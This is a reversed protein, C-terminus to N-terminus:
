VSGTTKFLPLHIVDTTKRDFVYLGKNRLGRISFQHFEVEGSGSAYMTIMPQHFQGIESGPIGLRQLRPKTDQFHQLATEPSLFGEGAVFEDIGINSGSVIFATFVAGPLSAPAVSGTMSAVTQGDVYLYISGSAYTYGFYHYRRPDELLYSAISGTVTTTTTNQISMKTRQSPIDIGVLYGGANLVNSYNVANQRKFTISNLRAAAEKDIGTVWMECYFSAGFNLLPGVSGTYVLSGSPSVGTRIEDRSMVLGPVSGSTTIRQLNISNSSIDRLTARQPSQDDFLWHVGMSGTSFPLVDITDTNYERFYVTSPISSSGYQRVAFKYSADNRILVLWDYYWDPITNVYSDYVDIDYMAEDYIPYLTNPLQMVDGVFVAGTVSTPASNYMYGASSLSLVNTVSVAVSGTQPRYYSFDRSFFLRPNVDAKVVKRFAQEISAGYSGVVSATSFIYIDLGSYTNVSDRIFTNTGLRSWSVAFQDNVAFSGTAPLVHGIRPVDTDTVIFGPGVGKVSGTTTSLAWGPYQVLPQVILPAIGSFAHGVRALGEETTGALYAETLLRLTQRYPQLVSVSNFQDYSQEFLKSVGLVSGFNDFMKSTTRSTNVPTTRVDTVYLDNLLQNIDTSASAFQQAYMEFTDYVTSNIVNVPYWRLSLTSFLDSLM